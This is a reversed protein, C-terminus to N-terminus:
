SSFRQFLNQKIRLPDLDARLALLSLQRLQDVPVRNEVTLATTSPKIDKVSCDVVLRSVQHAQVLQLLPSTALLPDRLRKVGLEQTKVLPLRPKRHQGQRPGLHQQKEPPNRIRKPEVQNKRHRSRDKRRLTIPDNM